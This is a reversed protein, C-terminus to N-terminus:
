CENVEAMAREYIERMQIVIHEVREDANFRGAAVGVKEGWGEDDQEAALEVKTANWIAFVERSLHYFKSEVPAGLLLCDIEM